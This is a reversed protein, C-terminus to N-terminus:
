SEQKEGMQKLQITKAADLMKKITEEGFPEGEIDKITYSTNGSKVITMFHYESQNISPIEMEYMITEPEDIVYRKLKKVENSTNDSKQLQIDEEGENITIKFDKGVSIERAGWSQEIIELKGNNSDPVAITIPLGYSSLDLEMMGAMSKQEEKKEGNCATFILAISSVILLIKKM